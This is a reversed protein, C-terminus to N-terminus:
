VLILKAGGRRYRGARSEGLEKGTIACEFSSLAGFRTFTHRGFKTHDGVFIQRSSVRIAAKKVEAVAPDPTTLYGPETVGNAGIFALDLEMTELMDVAWMDVVGQTRPRVRGGVAITTHELRQSLAQAIYLSTTVVTLPEEQPLLHAIRSPLFGEDLFVTEANGIQAIAAIAIREKEARNESARRQHNTEFLGSEVARLAGYSRAIRGSSELARLDRRITEPSVGFTVHLDAVALTGAQRAAEVIEERRQAGQRQNQALGSSSEASM